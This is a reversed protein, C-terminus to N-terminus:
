NKRFSTYPQYQQFQPQQFQQQKNQSNQFNQVNPVSNGGTQTPGPTSFNTFYPQYAQKTAFNPNRTNGTAFQENSVTPPSPSAQFKAKPPLTPAPCSPVPSRQQPIQASQLQVPKRALYDDCIKYIIRMDKIKPEITRELDDFNFRERAFKALYKVDRRVEVICKSYSQIEACLTPTWYQLINGMNHINLEVKSFELAAM